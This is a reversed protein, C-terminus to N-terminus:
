PYSSCTDGLISLIAQFERTNLLAKLAPGYVLGEMFAMKVEVYGKLKSPNPLIIKFSVMAEISLFCPNVVAIKEVLGRNDGM